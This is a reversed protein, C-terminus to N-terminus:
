LALDPKDLYAVTLILNVQVDDISVMSSVFRIDYSMVGHETFDVWFAVLVLVVLYVLFSGLCVVGM